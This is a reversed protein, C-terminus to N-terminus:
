LRFELADIDIGKAAFKAREDEIKKQADAKMWADLVAQTPFAGIHGREDRGTRHEQAARLIRKLTRLPQAEITQTTKEGCCPCEIREAFTVPIDLSRRQDPVRLRIGGSPSLSITIEM